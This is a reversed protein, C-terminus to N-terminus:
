ATTLLQAVDCTNHTREVQVRACQHCSSLTWLGMQVWIVLSIFTINDSIAIHAVTILYIHAHACTPIPTHYPTTIGTHYPTESGM